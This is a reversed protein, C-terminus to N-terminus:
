GGEGEATVPQPERWMPYMRVGDALEIPSGLDSYGHALYLRRSRQGAAEMYAPVGDRDLVQHHHRLLATGIGQGQRGPRVALLALHHHAVGTPHRAELAADFALFRHARRGTIATLQTHYGPPVTIPGPSAPLWLAAAGYGLAYATGCVSAQEAHLRFYAPFVAARADPDPILWRSPPLDHFAEAIVLSLVDLVLSLVDPEEVGAAVVTVQEGSSTARGSRATV